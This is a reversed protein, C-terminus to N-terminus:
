GMSRLQTNWQPIVEDSCVRATQPSSSSLGPITEGGGAETQSYLDKIRNTDWEWGPLPKSTAAKGRACHVHTCTNVIQM